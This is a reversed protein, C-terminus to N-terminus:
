ANSELYCEFFILKETQLRFNIISHCQSGHIAVIGLVHANFESQSSNSNRATPVRSACRGVNPMFHLIASFFKATTAWRGAATSIVLRVLWFEKVMSILSPEFFIPVSTTPRPVTSHHGSLLLTFACRPFQYWNASTIAVRDWFLDIRFGFQAASREFDPHVVRALHKTESHRPQKWGRANRKLLPSGM